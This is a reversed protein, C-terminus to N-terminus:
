HGAGLEEEREDELSYVMLSSFHNGQTEKFGRESGLTWV